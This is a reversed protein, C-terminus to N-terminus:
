SEEIFENLKKRIKSIRNNVSAETSDIIDAIAKSPMGFRHLKFVIRDMQTINQLATNISVKKLIEMEVDNSTEFNEDLEMKRSQGFLGDFGKKRLYNLATHNAIVVIWRALSHGEGESYMRLRRRDDDFLQFFVEQYVEELNEKVLPAHKLTFTKRVATCVLRWYQEVIRECNNYLICEDLMEREEEKTM